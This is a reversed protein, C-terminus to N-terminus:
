LSVIKLKEVGKKKLKNLTGQAEAETVFEGFRLTTVSFDIKSQREDVRIGKQYLIDAARRAKDLSIFSGAYVSYQGDEALLFAGEAHKKIEALRKNAQAKEFSGVLLRTVEYPEKKQSSSVKYGLKDIKATVQQVTRPSIYSGATLVVTPVPIPSSVPTPETKTVVEAVKEIAVVEEKVGEEEALPKPREPVKMKVPKQAEVLATSVEPANLNQGFLYLGAAIGAFVCLSVLLLQVRGGKRVPAEKLVSEETPGTEIKEDKM